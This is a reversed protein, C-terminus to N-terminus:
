RCAWRSSPPSPSFRRRGATVLFNKDFLIDLFGVDLM